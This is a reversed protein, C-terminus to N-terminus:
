TYIIGGYLKNLIHNAHSFLCVVVVVGRQIISQLKAFELFRIKAKLDNGLKAWVWM